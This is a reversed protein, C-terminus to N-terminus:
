NNIPFFENILGHVEILIKEVSSNQLKELVDAGGIKIFQEVFLNSNMSSDGFNLKKYEAFIARLAELALLIIKEQNIQLCDLLAEFISHKAILNIKMDLDSGSVCNSICWAAETVVATNNDSLRQRILDLFGTNMLYSIHEKTGAALNAFVWLSERRVQFYPDNLFHALISPVELSIIYDTITDKGSTLNGIIKMFSLKIKNENINNKTFNVM